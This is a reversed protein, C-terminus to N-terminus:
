TAQTYRTHRKTMTARQEDGISTKATKHLPSQALAFYCHRFHTVKFYTVNKSTYKRNQPGHM